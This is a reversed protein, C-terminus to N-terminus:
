VTAGIQLAIPMDRSSTNPIESGAALDAFANINCHNKYSM